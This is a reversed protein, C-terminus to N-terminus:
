HVRLVAIAADEMADILVDAELNTIRTIDIPQKLLRAYADHLGQMRRHIELRKAPSAPRNNAAVIAGLTKQAAAAPKKKEM